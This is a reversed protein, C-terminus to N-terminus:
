QLVPVRTSSYIYGHVCTTDVLAQVPVRTSWYTEIGISGAGGDGHLM